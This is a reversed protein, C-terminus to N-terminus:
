TWRSPVIVTSNCRCAMAALPLRPPRALPRLKSRKAQRAKNQWVELLLEEQINKRENSRKGNVHHHQLKATRTGATSVFFMHFYSCINCGQNSGEAFSKRDVLTGIKCQPGNHRLWRAGRLLLLKAHLLVLRRKNYKVTTCETYPRQPRRSLVV